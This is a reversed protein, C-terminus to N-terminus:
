NKQLLKISYAIGIAVGAYVAAEGIISVEPEGFPPLLDIDVQNNASRKM